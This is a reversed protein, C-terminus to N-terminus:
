VGGAHVQHGSEIERALSRLMSRRIFRSAPGIVRFYRRFKKWAREDTAQVRVELELHTAGAARPTLHLAWAVKVYGADQFAMFAKADGFHVFPIDCRWVQGIAGVVVERPADDVLVQFGPQTGSSRLDDLRVFPPPLQRRWSAMTRLSFLGRALRSQVLNGYRVRAWADSLPLWLEIGDSELHHPCPILRALATM